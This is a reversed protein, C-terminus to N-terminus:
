NSNGNESPLVVSPDIPTSVTGVPFFCAVPRKTNQHSVLEPESQQCEPRAYQCRPYFRCGTPLNAPDPIEGKIAARIRVGGDRPRPVAALLGETYPHRPRELVDKTIGLEVIKGLYMVAMRDCLYRIVELDHSIFVYTLELEQKLDILLNLIQSRVSVDLASTPEDLVLIRAGTALARAIVVRQRQGGSLQHPYKDLTPRRLGVHDMLDGMDMLRHNNQASDRLNYAEQLSVRIKFAPNLSGYPDQFIMQGTQRLKRLPIQQPDHINKGELRIEGSTLPILGLLLSALTSKGCGSEGVLGMIEGPYVTLSVDDVARIVKESGRLSLRSPKFHKSVGIAEIAPNM